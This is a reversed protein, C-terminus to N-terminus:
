LESQTEALSEKEERKCAAELLEVAEFVGCRVLVEGFIFAPILERKM